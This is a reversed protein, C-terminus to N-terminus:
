KKFLLRRLLILDFIDAKGNNNMDTNALNTAKGTLYRNLTVLDATNVAGDGNYDGRLINSAGAYVATVTAESDLKFEITPSTLKSSPLTIGSVEWHDFSKGEAPEATLTLTQDSFYKGSWKDYNLTLTNLKITGNEPQNNITLVKDQGTIGTSQQMHQMIRSFRQSFFNTLTSLESNYKSEATGGGGGFFSMSNGHFREITDVIQQHFNKDYYMSKESVNKESFNENALDMLTINFQDRFEKNKMLSIFMRSDNDSNRSIRQFANKDVSADNGYLGTSLETDFLFARWKGDAYPNGEEPVSAKWVAFNNQPWDTNNLYIQAAFYDIYSQIDLKECVKKYADASTLDTSACYEAFQNWEALDADTGEEAEGNKIIVCSDKDIGFHTKLYDASVREIIQYIGWFEGDLFVMCESTAQVAMDRDAVLSQNISDRFFTYGNDNGGNRLTIGKFKDIIKGNKKTATGDFFDFEFEDKGYDARAYVNFSKQAYSRSAAGKIRIGVDQKLVSKGNEFLEFTAPREWAKGHQTYNAEMEWTNIMGFGGFGGWMGGPGGPGGPNDQGQGYTDDYVKGKVYIGNEYDFLNDPDTVLSVVKMNKYYATDTSGVFYTKTVISSTRGQADVAVARIVAAKDVLDKPVSVQDVCIDTRASYVNPNSSCDTISIPSTYKESSTTPDSGDTTYYVTCGSPVSITLSFQSSYFGSEASFEPLKVANSGEPALNPASPTAALTFYEGSGDPYQGYTMDSALSEYAATDAQNGNKDTLIITEGSDSLGFPAISPDNAAADKDCAIVLRGGPAISTGEPFTYRYPKTDKDSLGWGSIDVASSSGNYLEIWDYLGGSITQKTNKACVENITVGGSAANARAPAPLYGPAGIVLALSMIGAAAKKLNSWKMDIDELDFQVSNHM